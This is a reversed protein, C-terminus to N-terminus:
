PDFIRPQAPTTVPTHGATQSSPGDERAPLSRITQAAERIHAKSFTPRRDTRMFRLASLGSGPQHVRTNSM